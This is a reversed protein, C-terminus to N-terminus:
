ALTLPLLQRYNRKAIIRKGGNVTDIPEGAVFSYDRRQRRCFLKFLM